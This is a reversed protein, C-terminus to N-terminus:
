FAATAAATFSPMVPFHHSAVPYCPEPERAPRNTVPKGSAPYRPNPLNPLTPPTAAGPAHPPAHSSAAGPAAGLGTPRSFLETRGTSQLILVQVGSGLNESWHGSGRDPHPAAGLASHRWQWSQAPESGSRVAGVSSSSTWTWIMLVTNGSPMSTSMTVARRRERM